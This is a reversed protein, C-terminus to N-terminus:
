RRHRKSESSSYGSTQFEKKLTEPVYEFSSGDQTVATCCVKETKFEEPIWGLLYGHEAVVALCIEETKFCRRSIIYIDARNWLTHLQEAAALCIKETLRGDPIEIFAAPYNKVAALCTEEDMFKKPVYKLLKGAAKVAALCGAQTSFDCIWNYLLPLVEQNHREKVAERCKDSATSRRRLFSALRTTEVGNEYVICGWGIKDGNLSQQINFFLSLPKGTEATFDKIISLFPEEYACAAGILHFSMDKTLQYPFVGQEAEPELCWEKENEEDHEKEDDIYKSWKGWNESTKMQETRSFFEAIHEKSGKCYIDFIINEGPIKQLEKKFAEPVYRIASPDQEVALHCVEITKYQEEIHYLANGQSSVAIRCLDENIFQAPVWHIANGHNALAIRCLEATILGKPVDALNAGCSTVAARCIEETRRDMPIKGLVSGHHLSVAILCLEPTKLRDPIYKFSSVNAKVLAICFQETLLAEPIYKFNWSIERVAALCVEETKSKEPIYKFLRYCVGLAALCGEQTSFDCFWDIILPLIEAERRKRVAEACYDCATDLPPGYDGDDQYDESEDDENESSAEVKNLAAEEEFDAIRLSTFRRIKEVANEFVMCGCSINEGDQGERLNFFISLPRGTEATFDKIISLFPEQYSCGAKELYIDMGRDRTLLPDPCRVIGKDVGYHFSLKTGIDNETENDYFFSSSGDDYSWEGWPEGAQMQEVRDFFEVIDEKSGKCFIDFIYSKNGLPKTM